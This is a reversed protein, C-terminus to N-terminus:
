LGGKDTSYLMYSHLFTIYYMNYVLCTYVTFKLDAQNLASLSHTANWVHTMIRRRWRGQGLQWESMRLWCDVQFSMRQLVLATRSDDERCVVCHLMLEPSVWKLQAWEAKFTGSLSHNTISNNVVSRMDILWVSFM